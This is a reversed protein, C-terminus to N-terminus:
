GRRWAHFRTLWPMVWDPKHNQKWVGATYKLSEAMTPYPHITSLIKNLGLKWKVALTFESILDGAQVGVITAGLIQDTGPRTLV